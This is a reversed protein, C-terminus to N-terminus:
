RLHSPNNKFEGGCSHDDKGLFVHGTLQCLVKEGDSLFDLLLHRTGPPDVLGRLHEGDQRSGVQKEVVWCQLEDFVDALYM